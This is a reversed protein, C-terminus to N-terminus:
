RDGEVVVASDVLIRVSHRVHSNLSGQAAVVTQMGGVSRFTTLLTLKAAWEKAEIM